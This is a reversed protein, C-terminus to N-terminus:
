TGLMNFYGGIGKRGCSFVVAALSLCSMHDRFQSGKSEGWLMIVRLIGIVLLETSGMGKSSKVGFKSLLSVSLFFHNIDETAADSLVSRDENICGWQLLKPKTM